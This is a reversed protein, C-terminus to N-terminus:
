IGSANERYGSEERLISIYVSMEKFIDGGRLHFYRILTLITIFLNTNKDMSSHKSQIRFRVLKNMVIM